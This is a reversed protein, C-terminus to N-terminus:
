CQFLFSHIFFTYFLSAIKCDVLKYFLSHLHLFLYTSKKCCKINYKIFTLLTLENLFDQFIIDEPAPNWLALQTEAWVPALPLAGDVYLRSIASLLCTSWMATLKPSMWTLAEMMIIPPPPSKTWLLFPDPLQPNSWTPLTNWLLPSVSDQLMPSLIEEMLLKDTLSPSWTKTIMQTTPKVSSM